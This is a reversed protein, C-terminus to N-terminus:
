VSLEFPLYMEVLTGSPNNNGDVLDNISFHSKMKKTKSILDLREETLKIGLSEKKFGSNTKLNITNTRGVGNDEISCLLFENENRVEIKLLGSKDPNCFGHKISNEVFPQLILPPVLTTEPDIGPEIVFEYQFPRTFRMNELDMYLRLTELEDSLPMERKKSNELVSRTLVSFKDLCTKSEQIKLENLLGNITHICNFIFHPNMQSRLAKMDTESITQLLVAQERKKKNRSLVFGSGSFLFLAVFGSAIAWITNKKKETDLNLTLIEKDKKETEYKTQMEAISKSNQESFITDSLQQYRNLYVVVNDPQNIRSYLEIFNVSIERLSKKDKIENLIRESKHMYELAKTYDGKDNYTTGINQFIVSVVNKDGMQIAIPLANNFFGLAIDNKGQNHYTTGLLLNVLTQYYRNQTEEFIKKAENLAKITGDYNKEELYVLALRYWSGGIGETNGAKIFITKANLAYKRAKEYQKLYRYISSINLLPYGIIKEENTDEFIKLAKFYYELAATYEGREKYISGIWDYGSALHKKDNLSFYLENAKKRLELAKGNEGFRIYIIAMNDFVEAKGKSDKIETVIDFRKEFCILATDIKGIQYYALGLANLCISQGKKFAIKQSLSLGQNAYLIAKDPKTDTFVNSLEYLVKVKSTDAKTTQLVALLSDIKQQQAFVPSIFALLLAFFVAHTVPFMTRLGIKLLRAKTCNPTPMLAKLM